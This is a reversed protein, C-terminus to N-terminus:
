ANEPSLLGIDEILDEFDGSYDGDNSYMHIMAIRNGKRYYGRGSIWGDAEYQLTYEYGDKEGSSVNEFDGSQAMVEYIKKATIEKKATFLLIYLHDKEDDKSFFVTCEKAHCDPYENIRNIVRDYMIQAESEDAATYYIGGEVEFFKMKGLLSDLDELETAGYRKAAARLVEHNFAEKKKKCGFSTLCFSLLLIGIIIRKVKTM